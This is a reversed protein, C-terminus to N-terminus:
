LIGIMEACQMLGVLVEVLILLIVVMELKQSHRAYVTQQLMQLLDEVV